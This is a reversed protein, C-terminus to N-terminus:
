RFKGHCNETISGSGERTHNQFTVTDFNKNICHQVHFHICEDFTDFEINESEKPMIDIQKDDTNTRSKGKPNLFNMNKVNLFEKYSLISRLKRIKVKDPFFKLAYNFYLEYSTARGPGRHKNDMNEFKPLCSNYKELTVDIWAQWFPKNFKKEVHDMMSKLITKNILIHHCVGSMPPKIQPPINLLKTMHEFYLATGDSFSINFLSIGNEIFVVPKIFFTDADCILVNDLIGPIYMASHLHIWGAYYWGTRFHNGIKDIMDQFTFPFIDEGIWIADDTLKTKSVVYINRLNKINKKAYQIALVLTETDKKHCPYVLDILDDNMKYYLNYYKKEKKCLLFKYKLYLNYAITNNNDVTLYLKEYPYNNNFFNLLNNMVIKSLGIGRFENNIYIGLWYKEEFDIHGYGAYYNNYKLLITYKHNKIINIDRTNYYRFFKDDINKIYKKLLDINQSNIEVIKIM